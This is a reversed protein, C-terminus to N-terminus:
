LCTCGVGAQSPGQTDMSLNQVKRLFFKIGLVM